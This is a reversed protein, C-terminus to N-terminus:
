RRADLIARLRDAEPRTLRGWTIRVTAYGRALTAADRERDTAFSTRDKHYEYGDLEVIVRAAEFLADVEYGAVQANTKPRPLGHRRCFDLFADEFESRTPATEEIFPTLRAAGPHCPNRALVDALQSEKLYNSLLAENVARTLQQDTLQPAVDLLTRAPTTVRIGHHRRVDKTSLTRSRHTRIGNPRRDAAATVDLLTPWRPMFGWLAAAARHSLAAKPGCALVAAAARELATQAPRGVAYVGLHVRHLRGTRLRHTIAASGLGLGLLQQRTVNGHQRSALRVIAPEIRPDEAM